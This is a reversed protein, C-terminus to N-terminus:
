AERYGNTVSERLTVCKAGMQWARSRLRATTVDYHPFRPNHGQFWERKLGLRQAFDHLEEASDARMHGVPDLYVTM